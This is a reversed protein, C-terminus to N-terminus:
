WSQWVFGLCVKHAISAAAFLRLLPTNGPQTRLTRFPVNIHTSTVSLVSLRVLLKVTQEKCCCKNAKQAVEALCTACFSSKRRVAIVSLMTKSAHLFHRRRKIHICKYLSVHAVETRRTEWKSNMCLAFHFLCVLTRSLLCGCAALPIVHLWPLWMPGRCICAALAVVHLWPLWMCGLCGCAALAVVHLWPLWICGLCGCAALAVVHLWPSWM